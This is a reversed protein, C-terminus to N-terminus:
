FKACPIIKSRHKKPKQPNYFQYILSFEHSGGTRYTQWSITIDYSYALELMKYKVGLLVCIADNNPYGKKYYKLWPLGRYYLGSFYFNTRYIAGIDFQDFKKQFRYQALAIIVPKDTKKGSGGSQDTYFTKAVHFSYKIPLKGDNGLFTQNPRNIHDITIGFYQDNSFILSGWSVDVYQSKEPLVPQLTSSANRILQDGFLLKSFNLGRYGYMIKIGSSVTWFRHFKYDYAYAMGLYRNGYNMSGANDSAVIAGIGSRLENLYYDYSIIFTNYTGPINWWQNRYTTALRSDANAGSFSPNLYVPSAHFQSLQM